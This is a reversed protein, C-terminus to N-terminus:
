FLEIDGMTLAWRELPPAQGGHLQRWVLTPGQGPVPLLGSRWSRGLVLAYDAGTARLVARILRREATTSAGPVLLDGITAETATGRRRLRFCAAGEQLDRGLPLVRYGLLDADYRWRLYAPSRRTRLRQDDPAAMSALLDATAGDDAFAETATTGATTPEGWHSAPVRGRVIAPIRTLGAPRMMPRLTGVPEWGMKLYGPRSNDNPTNFVFAVGDAAVEDLAHLTLTRFIGKGQHEPHTATDVARVARQPGDPGDFEWRLLARYGAVEGDAEAVWAPSAGFPSDQHKWRFLRAFRDDAPRDMAAALLALVAPEDAQTAPRVTM